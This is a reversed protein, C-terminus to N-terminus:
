RRIKGGTSRTSAPRRPRQAPSISKIMLRRKAGFPIECRALEAEMLGRLAPRDLDAPSALRVQRVLKGSGRMVHEPDPLTAGRLFFLTVWRPYLAISFLADGARETPGFGIVLANYNDYVLEIAGPVIARMKRLMATALRAIEPTYKALFQDLQRAAPLSKMRKMM